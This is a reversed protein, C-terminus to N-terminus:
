EASVVKLPPPLALGTKISHTDQAVFSDVLENALEEIMPEFLKLRRPVFFSGVSKRLRNHDPDDLGILTGRRPCKSRIQAAVFELPEPVTAKSSFIDPNNPVTVIDSYRAIIFAQLSIDFIISDHVRLATLDQHLQSPDQLLKPCGLAHVIIFKKHGVAIHTCRRTVATDPPCESFGFTHAYAKFLNLLWCSKESCTSNPTHPACVPAWEARM